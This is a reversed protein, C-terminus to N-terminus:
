EAGGDHHAHPHAHAGGREAIRLVDVWSLLKGGLERQYGRAAELTAHATLGMGMPSRVEASHLYFAEEARVWREPEGFDAVWVSHLEMAAGPGNAGVWEALCEVADFSYAKGKATLAQGAYQLDDIVMRCHSCEESGLQIPRPEVACAALFVAALLLALVSSARRKARLWARTTRYRPDNRM